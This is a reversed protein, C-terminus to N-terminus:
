EESCGKRGDFQLKPLKAVSDSRRELKDEQKSDNLTHLLGRATREAAKANQDVYSRGEGIAFKGM